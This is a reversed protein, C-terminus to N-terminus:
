GDVHRDKTTAPRRETNDGVNATATATTEAIAIRTIIKITTRALPKPTQLELQALLFAGSGEGGDHTKGDVGDVSTALFM